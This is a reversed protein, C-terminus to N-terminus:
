KECKNKIKRINLYSIITRDIDMNSDYNAVEEYDCYITNGVTLKNNETCINYIFQNYKIPQINKNIDIVRKWQNNNFLIQFPSVYIGKYKYMGNVPLFKTVGTVKINNDLIDGIKIESVKKKKKNYMIVPTNHGFGNLYYDKKLDSPIINIQKNNLNSLVIEKIKHNINYNSTEIYDRFICNNIIIKNNQTILCYIYPKTYNICKANKVENIRKWIGNNYIIHTSSVIINNYKFIDVNKSSFKLKGLVIGGGMLKEGIQVKNIKKKFGSKLTIYTDEGFCFFKAMSGIPGTFINEISKMATFGTYILTVLIGVMRELIARIKVLLLQMTSGVDSIRSVIGSAFKLHFIRFVNTFKRLDNFSNTISKLTQSIISTISLVPNLFSSKHTQFHMGLCKSLNESSDKGFFSAFPMIIPDCRYEVWNDIIYQKNGFGVILSSLFIFIIVIFILTFWRSLSKMFYSSDCEEM